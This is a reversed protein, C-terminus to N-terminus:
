SSRVVASYYVGAFTQEAEVAKRYHPQGGVSHLRKFQVAAIDDAVALYVAVLLYFLLKCLFVCKFAAGVALYKEREVAFVAHIHELHEVGLKRQNDVVAFLFFIDGCSVRYADAREVVAVIFFTNDHERALRLVEDSHAPMNHGERGSVVIFVALKDLVAVYRRNVFYAMVVKLCNAFVDAFLEDGANVLSENRVCLDAEQEGASEIRGEDAGYRCSLAFLRYAGKCYAHALVSNVEFVCLFDGIVDAAVVGLDDHCFLLDYVRELTDDTHEACKIDCSDARAHAHVQQAFPYM